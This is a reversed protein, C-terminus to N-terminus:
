RSMGEAAQEVHAEPKAAGILLAQSDSSDYHYREYYHVMLLGVVFGLAGGFASM